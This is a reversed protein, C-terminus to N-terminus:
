YHRNHRDIVKRETNITAVSRQQFIESAERGRVGWHGLGHSGYPVAWSSSRRRLRARSWPSVPRSTARRTPTVSDLRQRQLFARRRCPWSPMVV